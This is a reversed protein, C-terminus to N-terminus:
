ILHCARDQLHHHLPHLLERLHPLILPMLQILYPSRPRPPNPGWGGEGGSEMYLAAKIAQKFSAQCLV